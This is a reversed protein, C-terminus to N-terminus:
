HWFGLDRHLRSGSAMYKLVDATTVAIESVKTDANALFVKNPFRDLIAAFLARDVAPKTIPWIEMIGAFVRQWVDPRIAAAVQEDLGETDSKYFIRGKGWTECEIAVDRVDVLIKGFNPPMADVALSFNGNNTPDLYLETPGSRNSVAAEIMTVRDSFPKLNHSMCGFNQPEPEYCFVKAIAPIAILLQRSFLGMNAGVDILTIPESGLCVRKAFNLEEIQWRHRGLVIPCMLYDAVLRVTPAFQQGERGIMLPSGDRPSFELSALGFWDRCIRIGLPVVQNYAREAEAPSVSQRGPSGMCYFGLMFPHGSSCISTASWGCNPRKEAIEQAIPKKCALEFRARAYSGVWHRGVNAGPVTSASDGASKPLQDGVLGLLKRRSV